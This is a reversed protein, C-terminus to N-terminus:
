CQNKSLKNYIEPLLSTLGEDYARAVVDVTNLELLRKNSCINLHAMEGKLEEKDKKKAFVDNQEDQTLPRFNMLLQEINWRNHEVDSLLNIQKASLCCGNYDISRLKTWTMNGNYLNSFYNAVQSKGKYKVYKDEQGAEKMKKDIYDRKIENYRSGIADGIRESQKLWDISVCDEPAGFCKLKNLYPFKADQSYLASIISNGYRNYVLVQLLSEYKFIKKDLYLAAAHSRNSEPLCIAITIRVDKEATHLIYDQISKQEIGGNIFEWEIDIFDGGLHDNNLPIHPEQWLLQDDDEAAGYRYHSLSFLEKYRGLFFDKEEKANKDIFTIKSRIKKEETYNPFHALHAAEIAMAYGMRSMGVVFLHAYTNDNEKIGNCGELPLYGGEKSVTILKNPAIEKNIFVKQAWMEYYNFPKFNIYSSIEKDLDYFQFVTFTTQYEFMVRCMLQLAELEKCIDNIKNKLVETESEDTSNEIDKEIGKKETHLETIRTGNNSGKFYNYILKLCEMNMTDHYSEIDDTRIDEGIIYVEQANDIILSKIDEESTRNGFYIITQQQQEITLYSFLERRFEEVDRSTQILVYPIQNGGNKSSQDNDNASQANDFIQKVIGFVIDNGGIVVYHKQKRFKLFWKYRIDGKFWKEKRRDIWGIISSVLLGNLLFIGLIAILVSGNRGSQSTTMHQNGPDLFHFYTSWLRSPNAQKKKIDCHLDNDRCAYLNEEYILEKTSEITVWSAATLIFPIALILCCVKRLYNGNVLDWDFKPRNLLLRKIPVIVFYLGAFAALHLIIKNIPWDEPMKLNCILAALALIIYGWDIISKRKNKDKLNEKFYEWITKVNVNNKM